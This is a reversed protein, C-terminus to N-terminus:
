FISNGICSGSFTSTNIKFVGARVKFFSIRVNKYFVESMRVLHPSIHALANEGIHSFVTFEGSVSKLIEYFFNCHCFNKEFYM